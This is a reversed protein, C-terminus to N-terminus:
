EGRGGKFALLTGGAITGALREAIRRVRVHRTYHRVMDVGMGAIADIEEDTMGWEKLLCAGNKRLGHFTFRADAPCEGAAISEAIAAQVAPGAMLDNIRERLTADESFPKGSRDHLITVARAEIKAIEATWLPHMPIAVQKKTKEQTLQMIGGSIWNRRMRICDGIRQVSCLGTIIALRTIPTAACLAADLVRDPWPLHEGVALKEIGTAPNDGRWDRRVAFALMLRLVTLYNNWTGPRDEYRDRLIYIHVPRMTKVPRSGIDAEIMDVYRLYNARTATALTQATLNKRFLPALAAFTGPAPPAREDEAAALRAYAAAFAPDDPSPLRIYHDKGDVKRRFYFRGAKQCVNKMELRGM